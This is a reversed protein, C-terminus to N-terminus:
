VLAATERPSYADIANHHPEDPVDYFWDLRKRM